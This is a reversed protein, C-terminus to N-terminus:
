FQRRYKELARRNQQNLNLLLLLGSHLGEEGGGVMSLTGAEVQNIYYRYTAIGYRIPVQTPIFLGFRNPASYIRLPALQETSFHVGMLEGNPASPILQGGPLRLPRHSELDPRLLDELAFTLTIQGKDGDWPSLELLSNPYGPLPDLLEDYEIPVDLVLRFTMTDEILEQHPGDVGPIQINSEVERGCGTLSIILVAAFFLSHLTPM